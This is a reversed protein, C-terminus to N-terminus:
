ALRGRSLDLLVLRNGDPDEVVAARGVEIDFPPEAVRWIV